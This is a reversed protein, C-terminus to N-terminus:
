SSSTTFVRIRVLMNWVATKSSESQLREIEIQEVTSLLPLSEYLQAAHMIQAYNGSAQISFIVARIPDGNQIAQTGALSADSVKAQVGASKGAQELTNIITVLDTKLMVELQAREPETSAALSKVRQNLAEQNAKTLAARMDSARADAVSIMMYGAYGVACWLAIAAAVLVWSVTILRRAM